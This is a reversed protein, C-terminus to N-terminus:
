SRNALNIAQRGFPDFDFLTGAADAIICKEGYDSAGNSAEILIDLPTALNPPYSEEGPTEWPLPENPINL